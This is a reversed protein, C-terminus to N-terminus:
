VEGRLEVDTNVQYPFAPHPIQKPKSKVAFSAPADFWFPEFEKNQRSAWV